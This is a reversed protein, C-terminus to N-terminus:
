RPMFRVLVTAAGAPTTSASDLVTLDSLRNERRFWSWKLQALGEALPIGLLFRLIVVLLSILSNLTISYPWDDLARGNYVRLIIFIAALTGMSCLCALSELTWNWELRGPAPRRPQEQHRGPLKSPGHTQVEPSKSDVEQGTTETQPIVPRRHIQAM